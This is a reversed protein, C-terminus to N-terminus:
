SAQKLAVLDGFVNTYWPADQSVAEAPTANFSHVAEDSTSFVEFVRAVRMIELIVEAESSLASLKLDGDRKMAEELVHLMMEIGAGDIRRVQSFDLVIRPRHGDLLPELEPLLTRVGDAGLQEPMQLIVVPGSTLM